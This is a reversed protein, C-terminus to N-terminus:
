VLRRPRKGRPATASADAGSEAVAVPVVFHSGQLTLAAITSMPGPRARRSRAPRRGPGTESRPTERCGTGVSVTTRAGRRSTAPLLRPPVPCALRAPRSSPGVGWGRRPSAPDRDLRVRASPMKAAWATAADLDAVDIVYFSFLVEKTEAYPGDTVTLDGGPARVTTTADIHPGRATAWAGAQKLEQNLEGWRVVMEADFEPTGEQPGKGPPFHLMLLYQM